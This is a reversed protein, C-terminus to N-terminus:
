FLSMLTKVARQILSLVIIAVIPSFDIGAGGLSLIPLARRFLNLYPETVDCLFHLLSRSLESQPVVPVWSLIIRILLLWFYVRFLLDVLPIFKILM